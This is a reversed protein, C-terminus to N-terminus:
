GALAWLGGTGHRRGTQSAGAARATAVGQALGLLQAPDSDKPSVDGTESPGKVSNTQTTKNPPSHPTMLQTNPSSHPTMQYGSLSIVRIFFRLPSQSGTFM